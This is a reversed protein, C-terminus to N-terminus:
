LFGAAALVLQERLRILFFLPSQILRKVLDSVFEPM